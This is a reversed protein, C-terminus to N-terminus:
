EGGITLGEVRLTPAEVGMENRLDDAGALGALMEDWRGALTAETVPYAVAGGEIWFGSAGRSYDGTVPNLGPGMLETVLLGEGIEAMLAEPTPADDAVSLWAQSAGPRPAGGMGRMASGNSELGLRGAADCDLLWTAVVGDDILRKERTAVGEGDFPRARLGDPRSPDDILSLGAPAIRRGEQKALFSSGRAVLDGNLAGLLGRAMGAAARRDFIVPYRGTKARRPGLRRVAREAAERGLDEATRLRSPDRAVSYAYDREMVGGAEAIASVSLAESATAYRGFFGHSTALAYDSRSVGAMADDAQSVGHVELVAAEVARARELLAEPSLSTEGGDADSAAMGLRAAAQAPDVALSEPPALGASPDVPAERAMAVAREALATLTAPTADSASVSAHRRGGPADILVRLGFRLNEARQAEELAGGRASVRLSAGQEIVADAQDAGAARAADLLAAALDATSIVPSNPAETGATLTM